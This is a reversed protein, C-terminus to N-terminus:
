FFLFLPLRAELGHALDLQRLLRKKGHQAPPALLLCTALLLLCTALPLSGNFTALICHVTCLLEASHLNGSYLLCYM